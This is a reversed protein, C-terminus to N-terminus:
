STIIERHFADIPALQWVLYGFADSVHTRMKDSAKDLDFNVSGQKWSVELFDTILEKCRPHVYTRIQNGASKLIANVSNVRDRVRPNGRPHDISLLFQGRSRFHERILNYDSPAATSRAGATADGCVTIPLPQGRNTAQYETLYSNAREEFPRM